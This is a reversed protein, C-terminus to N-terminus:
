REKWTGTCRRGAAERGAEREVYCQVNERERERECV